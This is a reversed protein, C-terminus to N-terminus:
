GGLQGNFLEHIIKPRRYTRYFWGKGKMKAEVRVIVEVCEIVMHRQMPTLSGYVIMPRLNLLMAIANQKLHECIQDPQNDLQLQIELQEKASLAM